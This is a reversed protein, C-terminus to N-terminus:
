QECLAEFYCDTIVLWEELSGQRTFSDNNEPDGLARLAMDPTLTVVTPKVESDKDYFDDVSVRAHDELILFVEDDYLYLGLVNEVKKEGDSPSVVVVVPLQHFGTTSNDWIIAGINRAKMDDAIEAKAQRFLAASEAKSQTNDM